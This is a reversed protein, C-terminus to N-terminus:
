GHSVYFGCVWVGGFAFAAPGGMGAAGAGSAQPGSVGANGGGFGGSGGVGAAGFLATGGVGAAGGGFAAAGPGSTGTSRFAAPGGVGASGGGVGGSGVVGAAGFLVTGGGGVGAAGAGLAGAAGKGFAVKPKPQAKRVKIGGLVRGGDNEADADDGTDHGADDGADDDLDVTTEMDVPTPSSRTSRGRTSKRRKSGVEPTLVLNTHGSGGERSSADSSDVKIQKCFAACHAKHGNLGKQSDFERNCGSCVYRVDAADHQQRENTGLALASPCRYTM